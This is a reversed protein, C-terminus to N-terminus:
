MCSAKDITARCMRSGTCMADAHINVYTNNESRLESSVHDVCTIPTWIIFTVVGKVLEQLHGTVIIIILNLM